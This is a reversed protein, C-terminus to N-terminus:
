ATAARFLRRALLFGIASAALEAAWQLLTLNTPAEDRAVHGLLGFAAALGFFAVCLATMATLRTRNGFQGAGLFLGVGCLLAGTGTDGRQSWAMLGLGLLLVAALGCYVRALLAPGPSM